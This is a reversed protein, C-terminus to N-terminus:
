SVIRLTNSLIILLFKGILSSLLKAHYEVAFITSLYHYKLLSFNLRTMELLRLVKLVIKFVKLDNKINM